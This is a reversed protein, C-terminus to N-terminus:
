HSEITKFEHSQSSSDQTAILTRIRRVPWLTITAAFLLLLQSPEPVTSVSMSGKGFNNSLALFDSFGVVGDNDFNGRAWSGEMGFAASLTLFDAFTVKKDLNTDGPVTGLMEVAWVKVDASDIHGDCSLDFRTDQSDLTAEILLNLDAMTLSGNHDFDGFTPSGKCRNAILMGDMVLHSDELQLLTIPIDLSIPIQLSDLDGLVPNTSENRFFDPTEVTIGGLSVFTAGNLSALDIFGGDRKGDRDLDPIEYDLSGGAFVFNVNAPDGIALNGHIRIAVNRVALKFIEGTLHDKAAFNDITSTSGGIGVPPQFAGASNQLANIEGSEISLVNGNVDGKWFGEVSVRLSGDFQELLAFTTLIRSGEEVPNFPNILNPVGPVIRLWSERSDIEYRVAAEGTGFMLLLLYCGLPKVSWRNQCAM